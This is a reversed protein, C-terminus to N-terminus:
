CWLVLLTAVCQWAALDAFGLDQRDTLGFAAPATMRCTRQKAARTPSAHSAPMSTSRCATSSRTENSGTIGCLVSSQKQKSKTEVLVCASTLAVLIAKRAQIWLGSGGLLSLLCAVCHM